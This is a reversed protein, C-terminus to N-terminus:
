SRRPAARRRQRAAAHAERGGISLSLDRGLIKLMEDARGLAELIRVFNELGIAKGGELRRVTGFAEGARAALERQGMNLALRLAKCRRALERCIDQPTSFHVAM